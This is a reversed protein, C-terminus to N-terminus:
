WIISAINYKDTPFFYRKCGTKAKKRFDGRRNYMIKNGQLQIINYWLGILIAPLLVQFATYLIPSTGTVRPVFKDGCKKKHIKYRYVCLEEFYCTYLLIDGPVRMGLFLIQGWPYEEGPVCTGLTVNRDKLHKVPVRIYWFFLGFVALAQKRDIKYHNEM